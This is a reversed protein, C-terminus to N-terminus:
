SLLINKFKNKNKIRYISFDSDLSIINKINDAEAIVVLTADAFDMPRDSYKSMLYIIRDFQLAVINHVSLAGIHVWKLFDIQAKINFDLLHTVETIIPLSTVLIGSYGKLFSKVKEHYKDSSDFLAVIPGTDIISINKM